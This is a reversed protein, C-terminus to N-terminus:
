SQNGATDTKKPQERRTRDAELEAQNRVAAHEQEQIFRMDQQMAERDNREQATRIELDHKDRGQQMKEAHEQVKMNIEAQKKRVDLEALQRKLELEQAPNQKEAQELRSDLDAANQVVRAQEGDAKAIKHEADARIKDVEARLKENELQLNEVQLQQMQQAEPSAKSAELQKIIEGRDRLRSNKILVADDIQVGMERLRVGQEFESDEMLERSPVMSVVISYTGASLDNIVQYATQIDEDPGEEGPEVSQPQNVAMFETEQTFEDAIVPIVRPETYYAQVLDLVNRALLHMTRRFNDFELAFNQSGVNQKAMIAKAAVDERDQGLMSDTVNSIEKIAVDAKQSLRDLGSPYANPQIKQIAAQVDESVEIVLGTEAGREALEDVDMNVLTGSKVIYGSNATTNVVHLEQSTTKNLLQQPDLLHETLGSTRGEDFVPFYPVVTFHRYPSAADHLLINDAVVTWHIRKTLKRTKHLQPNQEMYVAVRAEDWNGPILTCDGTQLDVFYDAMELVRHQHEVVRVHRGTREGGTSSTYAADKDSGFRERTGTAITDTSYPSQNGGNRLYDAKKKGYLREIDDVTLWKTVMVDTWSDPDYETGDSEIMVNKSNLKKIVVNGTMNDDFEVRVDLFGRGTNLGQLLMQQALWDLQNQRAIHKFVKTHAEALEDFGASTPLFTVEARNNIHQGIVQKITRMIMNLTLAPRGQAKLASLVEAEWQDGWFFGSCRAAKEVFDKHGHDRLYRFRTWTREATEIEDGTPVYTTPTANKSM